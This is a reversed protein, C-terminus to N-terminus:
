GMRQQCADEVRSTGNLLHPHQPESLNLFLTVCSPSKALRHSELTTTHLQVLGTASFWTPTLRHSMHNWVLGYPAADAWHLPEETLNECETPLKTRDEFLCLTPSGEPWCHIELLCKRHPQM